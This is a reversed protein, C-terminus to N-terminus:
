LVAGVPTEKTKRTKKKIILRILIILWFLISYPIFMVKLLIYDKRFVVESWYYLIWNKYCYNEKIYAVASQPIEIIRGEKNVVINAPVLKFNFLDYLYKRKNPLSKSDLAYFKWNSVTNNLFPSNPTKWYKSDDISISIVSIEKERGKLLSDFQRMESVCPACGVFWFDIITIKSEFNLKVKNGLTDVIYNLELKKNVNQNLHRDNVKTLGYFITSFILTIPLFLLIWYVFLRFTKKM